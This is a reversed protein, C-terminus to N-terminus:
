WLNLAKGLAEAREHAPATAYAYAHSTHCIHPDQVVDYLTKLYKNIMDWGGKDIKGLQREVDHVANLDKFYDPPQADFDASQMAAKGAESSWWKQPPIWMPWCHGNPKEAFLKGGGKNQWRLQWGEFEALKINKEEQNM